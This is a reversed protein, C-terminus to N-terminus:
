PASTVTSVSSNKLQTPYLAGCVLFCAEFRDGGIRM